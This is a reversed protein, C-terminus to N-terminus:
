YSKIRFWVKGGFYDEQNKRMIIKLSAVDKTKSEAVRQFHPLTWNVSALAINKSQGAAIIKAGIVTNQM